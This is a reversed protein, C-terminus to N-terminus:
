DNKKNWQNITQNLSNTVFNRINEHNHNNSALKMANSAILTRQDDNTYLSLLTEKLDETCTVVFASNNEKLYRISAVDEPGYALICTGSAMSDPIKTSLSYKVRRRISDDFSETHILAMSKRMVAEVEAPLIAGNFKIGNKKNMGALIQPDTENSYVDIYKPLRPDDIENLVKGIDMLQRYRNLGLGGLYSINKTKKYEERHNMEKLTSATHLILCSKNFLENYAEAMLETLTYICTARSMTRSVTRMFLKHRFNGLVSSNKNYLYYDDLCCVALPIKRQEAITLAIRYSFSYDGSAYFIIDPDFDDIWKKLLRSNWRSMRWLADRLIYILASRKRGINYIPTLKNMDSSDKRNVQIDAETLMKGAHKRKFLSKIADVDTFQYYKHCTDSTPIESHFYLQAIKNKDWGWFYTDLTKGMSTNKSFVNHSVVLVKPCFNEEM